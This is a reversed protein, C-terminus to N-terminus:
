VLCGLFDLGACFGGSEFQLGGVWGVGGWWM